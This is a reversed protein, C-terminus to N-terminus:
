DKKELYAIAAAEDDFIHPLGGFLEKTTRTAQMKGVQTKVLVAVRKFLKAYKMLYPRVIRGLEPDTRIPARRLDFLIGLQAASIKVLSSEIQDLQHVLDNLSEIKTATRRLAFYSKGVDRELVYLPTRFVEM